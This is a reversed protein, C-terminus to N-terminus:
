HTSESFGSERGQEVEMLREQMLHKRDQQSWSQRRDFHPTWTPESVGEEEVGQPEHSEHSVTELPATTQERSRDPFPGQHSSSQM